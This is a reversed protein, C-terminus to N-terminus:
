LLSSLWFLNFLVMFLQISLAIPMREAKQSKGRSIVAIAVLTFLVLGLIIWITNWIEPLMSLLYLFWGIMYLFTCFFLIGALSGIGKKFFFGGAILIFVVISFLVWTRFQSIDVGLRNIMMGAALGFTLYLVMNWVPETALVIMGFLLALFAAQFFTGSDDPILYVHQYGLISALTGLGLLPAVQVLM